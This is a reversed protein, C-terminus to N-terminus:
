SSPEATNSQRLSRVGLFLAVLELGGAILFWAPINISAAKLALDIVIVPTIAVVAVRVLALYPVEIKLIKAFLMGILGYFLAQFAAFVFGFLVFGLFFAPVIVNAITNVWSNLISKDFNDIPAFEFTRSEFASRRAVLKDKGIKIKAGEPFKAEERTDIVAVVEGTKPDKIEYPMEADCHFEGQDISFDPLQNVLAPYEQNFFKSVSLHLPISLVAGASLILLFLYGYGLGGWERAASRYIGPSFFSYLPAQYPKHQM